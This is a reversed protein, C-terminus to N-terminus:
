LIYYIYLLHEKLTIHDIYICPRTSYVLFVILAGDINKRLMFFIDFTVIETLSISKM